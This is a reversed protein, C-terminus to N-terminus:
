SSIVIEEMLTLNRAIGEAGSVLCNLLLLEEMTVRKFRHGEMLWEVYASKMQAAIDSTTFDEVNLVDHNRRIPSTMVTSSRRMMGSIKKPTNQTSSAASLIRGAKKPTSVELMSSTINAMGTENSSTASCSARSGVRSDENISSLASKLGTAKPKRRHFVEVELKLGDELAAMFEDFSVKGSCDKDVIEMFDAVYKSIEEQKVAGSQAFITELMVAVEDADIEGSCDKDAVRFAEKMQMFIATQDPDSYLFSEGFLIQLTNFTDGVSSLFQNSAEQWKSHTTRGGNTDFVRASETGMDRIDVSNTQALHQQVRYNYWRVLKFLLNNNNLLRHSSDLVAEYKQKSFTPRWLQPEAEAEKLLVQQEVLQAPIKVQLIDRVEEMTETSMEDSSSLHHGFLIEFAKQQLKLTQQINKRLLSTASEPCMAMEVVIFLVLGVSTQALSSYSSIAITSSSDSGDTYCVDSQRLLVGASIFASVVGAYSSYGEVFKVYMSFAVWIFLVILPLLVNLFSPNCIQSFFFQFVSPVVSGAVVGGVRNVTVSFSGGIHNGMVYAVAAPTTSSFDYVYVALFIGMVIAVSVRAAELIRSRTYQNVMFFNKIAKVVFAKARRSGDFDKKNHTEQFEILTSCFSNLSFLFLNLPVNGEVDKIKVKHSQLLRIQSERYHRLTNEMQVELKHMAQLELQQTSAHVEGSIENLLDGSRMQIIYIERQLVKMYMFHLQDYQELQMANNLSRLDSILSGVLRVYGKMVSRNFKFYLHFGFLQEWWVNDLLAIMRRHRAATADFKRQLKLKLFNMHDVNKNKFCYSDVIVNLLDLIDDSAHLTEERLKKIAFIPYPIFMILLSILTGVFGVLFYMALNSLINSTDFYNDDTAKLKSSDLPDAPNIITLTFYLNNALAFKKTNSELPLLLVVVIFFIMWPLVTYFNHRNVWYSSSGFSMTIEFYGDYPDEADKNFTHVNISYFLVLNYVLAMGVGYFAQCVQTLTAGVNKGTSFIVAVACYSLGGLYYWEPFFFWKKDHEVSPDYNPDRTQIFSALIVGCAVRLSLEANFRFESSFMHQKISKKQDTDMDIRLNAGKDNFEESGITGTRLRVHPPSAMEDYGEDTLPVMTIEKEVASINLQRKNLTEAM